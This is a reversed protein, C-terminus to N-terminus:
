PKARCTSSGQPHPLGTFACIHQDTVIAGGGGDLDVTGQTDMNGVLHFNPTTLTTDGTVDTTKTGGVTASQNGDITEIMAGLVRMLANAKTTLRLHDVSSLDLVGGSQVVVAGFAEIRKIAGIIEVDDTETNRTSNFFSEVVDLAEVVRTLSKEHIEQDTVRQWNGSIDVRQFVDPNFQWRHEGRQLEPLTLRHPLVSRIFPRNPSGFAFALEVWAGNEPLAFFGMEHGSVPVAPIVDRLVPWATDPRGHEDIVQVDLAYRPRFDDCVDGAAPFERVGVVEALVPLHYNASLEPFLRLVIRRILKEIM